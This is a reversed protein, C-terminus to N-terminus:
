CGTCVTHATGPSAATGPARVLACWAGLLVAPMHGAWVTTAWQLAPHMPRRDNGDCQTTHVAAPCDLALGCFQHATCAGPLDCSPTGSALPITHTLLMMCCSAALLVANAVPPHGHLPCLGPHWVATPLPWHASGRGSAVCHCGCLGLIHRMFWPLRTSCRAGPGQPLACCLQQGSRGKHSLRGWWHPTCLPPAVTAWVGQLQLLM